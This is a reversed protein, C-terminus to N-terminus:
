SGGLIARQRDHHRMDELNAKLRLGGAQRGSIPSTGREDGKLSTWDPWQYAAKGSLLQLVTPNRRPARYAAVVADWM